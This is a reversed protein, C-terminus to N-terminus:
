DEVTNSSPTIWNMVPKVRKQLYLSDNVYVDVENHHSVVHEVYKKLTAPNIRPGHGCNDYRVEFYPFSEHHIFVNYEAMLESFEYLREKDVNFVWYSIEEPSDDDFYTFEVELSEFGAEEAAKAASYIDEKVLVMM